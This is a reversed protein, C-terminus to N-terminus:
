LRRQRRRATYLGLALVGTALLLLTGPEPVPESGGTVEVHIDLIIDALSGAFGSANHGLLDVLLVQDTFVGTSTPNFLVQLGAFIQLANLDTFPNFGSFGFDQLIGFNFAFNGDLLDAPAAVDNQVGLLASLLGSGQAVTGFDLLYSTGEGSLVGGGSTRLFIPNAFNNVTAELLINTTGLSLDAMEPNHSALNVSATSNFVGAIATSLTATLSTNNTTGAAVGAGLTGSATFPGSAGGFSGTLVDNLATVPATNSVSLAQPGVVDGVHVMGFNLTTPVVQAVAVQYVNGSVNLVQSGASIAALGSNGNPGTGDTQYNITVTGSQAGATATNVGVSLNTNNAGGAILNVVSGGNNTAAGTNGGFSANLAESFAGVPATNQVTRQQANSGGVRQNALTVPSPSTQGVAVNYVNGSVNLVQSGANTNGLGSTGTGNSVYDLAVTGNKAGATSTDVGVSM